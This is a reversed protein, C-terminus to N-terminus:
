FWLLKDILVVTRGLNCIRFVNKYIGDMYIQIIYRERLVNWILNFSVHIYSLYESAGLTILSGPSLYHCCWIRRINAYKPWQYCVEPVPAIMLSAWYWHFLGSTYLYIPWMLGIIVSLIVVIFCLVVFFSCINQAIYIYFLTVISDTNAIIM